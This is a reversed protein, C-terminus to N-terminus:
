GVRDEPYDGPACEDALPSNAIFLVIVTCSLLLLSATKQDHFFEQFPTVISVFGM